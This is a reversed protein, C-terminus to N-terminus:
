GVVAAAREISQQQEAAAQAAAQPGQGGELRQLADAERQQEEIAAHKAAEAEMRALARASLAPVPHTRGTAEIRAIADHALARLQDTGWEHSRNLQERLDTFETLWPGARPPFSHHHSLAQSCLDPLCAFLRPQRQLSGGRGSCGGLLQFAHGKVM